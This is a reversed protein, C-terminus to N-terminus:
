SPDAHLDVLLAERRQRRAQPDFGREALRAEIRKRTEVVRRAERRSINHNRSTELVETWEAHEEDTPCIVVLTKAWALEVRAHLRM